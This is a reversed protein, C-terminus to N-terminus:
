IAETGHNEKKCNFFDTLLQPLAYKIYIRQWWNLGENFERTFEAAAAVFQAAAIDSSKLHISFMYIEGILREWETTERLQVALARPRYLVLSVSAM